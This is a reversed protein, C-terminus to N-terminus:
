SGDRSEVVPSRLIGVLSGISGSHASNAAKVPDSSRVSNEGIWGHTGHPEAHVEPVGAGAQGGTPRIPLRDM